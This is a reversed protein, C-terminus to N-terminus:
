KPKDPLPMWHSYAYMMHDKDESVWIVDICGSDERYAIVEDGVTAVKIPQWSYIDNM